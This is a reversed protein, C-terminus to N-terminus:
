PLWSELDLFQVCCDPNGSCKLFYLFWSRCLWQRAFLCVFFLRACEISTFVFWYVFCLECLVQRLDDYFTLWGYAFLGMALSWM